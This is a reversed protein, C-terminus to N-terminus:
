NGIRPLPSSDIYNESKDIASRTRNDTEIDINRQFDDIVFDSIMIDSPEIETAMVVFGDGRKQSVIGKVEYQIKKPKSYILFSVREGEPFDRESKILFSEKSLNFITGNARSLIEAWNASHIKILVKVYTNVRIFRRKEKGSSDTM